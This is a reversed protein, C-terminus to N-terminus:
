VKITSRAELWDIYDAPAQMVLPQLFSIDCGEVMKENDLVRGDAAVTHHCLMRYDSDMPRSFSLTGQEGLTHMSAEHLRLSDFLSGNTDGLASLGHVLPGEPAKEAHM